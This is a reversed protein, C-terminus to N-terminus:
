DSKPAFAWIKTKNKIQATRADRQTCILSIVMLSPFTPSKLFVAAAPTIYPSAPKFGALVTGESATTSTNLNQM